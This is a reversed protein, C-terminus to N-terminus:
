ITKRYSMRINNNNNFNNNMNIKKKKRISANMLNITIFMKFRLLRKANLANLNRIQMLRTKGFPNQDALTKLQNVKRSANLPNKNRYNRCQCFLIKRKSKRM